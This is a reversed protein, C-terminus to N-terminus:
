VGPLDLGRLAEGGGSSPLSARSPARLLADSATVVPAVIMEVM